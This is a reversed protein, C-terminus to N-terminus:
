QAFRTLRAKSALARTRVVLERMHLSRADGPQENARITDYSMAIRELEERADRVDVPLAALEGEATERLNRMHSRDGLPGVTEAQELGAVLPPM